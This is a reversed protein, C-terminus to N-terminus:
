RTLPDEFVRDELHPNNFGDGKGSSNRYDNCPNFFFYSRVQVVKTKWQRELTSVSGMHGTLCWHVAECKSTCHLCRNWMNNRLLNYYYGHPAAHNWNNVIIDQTLLFKSKSTLNNINETAVRVNKSTTKPPM